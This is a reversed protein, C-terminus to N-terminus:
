RRRGVLLAIRSGRAVRAGAGPRQSVVRGAQGDGAVTYAVSAVLGFGVLISKAVSLKLGVVGPVVVDPKGGAKGNSVRLAVTTGGPADAGGPPDQGVVRGKPEGSPVEQVAAGYGAAQLIARARNVPQGVVDPVKGKPAPPPPPAAPFGLVPAGALAAAMYDHFIMAPYTGGFVPGGRPSLTPMPTPKPTFGVWVSTALQPTYGNFFASKYDQATGTKGAVPRDPLAAGVGTGGTVVGRLMATMQAAIKPEIVRQCSPKRDFLTRRGPGDIRAISFPTCRVGNNALVGYASAMDLVSVERVGLVLSCVQWAAYGPSDRPPINSIGMKRATEIARDIGVKLALQAFYTNVSHATAQYMNYVGAESEGANGPQWPQNIGVRCRRDPITIKAPSNFTTAPSIGEELAAVLFFVKFSSGPQFGTGGRGTTLDYKAHKFDRGSFQAVIRGTKPEVSALAATPNGNRGFRSWLQNSVAAEADRQRAPELTTYIRLGGQFVMRKRRESGAKGLVRDYVHDHLLQQKIDEVFLPQRTKPTYLKVRVKQKKAVAVQKATAFGREVMRDLVIGRRAANARRTPNYRNPAAITAALSAAEALSLESVSKGGFYHQAATAIGYAGGGFYAQNLYAYLIQDKTWRRELQVAYMAERIKRDLTRSDGTVVKKVYQQTLTSGGQTFSGERLDAVAARLIGRLDIGRHEYFRDDEIAVVANRVRRPIQSLPVIKRNEDLVLNALVTKGDAAYIVSTQAPAPLQKSLPPVDGLHRATDRVLAGAPVVFPLLAVSCLLAAAAIVAAIM